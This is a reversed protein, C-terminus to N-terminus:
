LGGLGCTSNCMLSATRNGYSSPEVPASPFAGEQRMERPTLPAEGSAAHTTVHGPAKCRLRGKPRDGFPVAVVREVADFELRKSADTLTGIEPRRVTSL